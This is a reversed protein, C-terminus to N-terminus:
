ADGREVPAPYEVEVPPASKAALVVDAIQCATAAIWVPGRQASEPRTLDNALLTNSYNEILRDRFTYTAAPKAPAAVASKVKENM